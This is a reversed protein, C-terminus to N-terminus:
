FALQAQLWTNKEIWDLKGIKVKLQTIDKPKKIKNGDSDKLKIKSIKFLYSQTLIKLLSEDDTKPVWAYIIESNFLVPDVVLCSLFTDLSRGIHENGPHVEFKTILFKLSHGKPLVRCAHINLANYEDQPKISDDHIKWLDQGAPSISNYKTSTEYLRGKCGTLPSPFWGYDPLELASESAFVNRSLFFVFLIITKKLVM